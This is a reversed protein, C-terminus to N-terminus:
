INRYGGDQGRNGASSHTVCLGAVVRCCANENHFSFEEKLPAEPSYAGGLDQVGAFIPTVGTWPDSGATSLLVSTLPALSHPDPQRSPRRHSHVTRSLPSRKSLM